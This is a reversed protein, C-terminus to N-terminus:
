GGRLFLVLAVVAVGAALLLAGTAVAIWFDPSRLSPNEDAHLLDWWYRVRRNWWIAQRRANGLRPAGQGYSSWEAQDQLDDMIGDSYEGVPPLPHKPKRRKIGARGM